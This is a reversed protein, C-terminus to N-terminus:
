RTRFGGPSSNEAKNSQFVGWNSQVTVTCDSYLSQVTVTFHSFTVKTTVKKRKVTVTFHSEFGKSTVKKRKVTM